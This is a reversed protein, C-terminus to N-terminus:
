EFNNNGININRSFYSTLMAYLSEAPGNRISYFTDNADPISDQSSLPEQTDM